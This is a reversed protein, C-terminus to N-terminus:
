AVMPALEEQPTLAAEAQPPAQVHVNAESSGSRVTPEAGYVEELSDAQVQCREMAHFLVLLTPLMHSRRALPTSRGPAALVILRLVRDQLTPSKGYGEESHIGASAPAGSDPVPVPVVNMAPAPLATSENVPTLGAPPSRPAAVTPRTPTTMAPALARRLMANAAGEDEQAWAEFVQDADPGELMPVDGAAEGRQAGYFADRLGQRAADQAEEEDQIEKELRERDKAFRAREKRFAEKMRTSRRSQSNLATQIAPTTSSRALRDEARAASDRSTTGRDAPLSVSAYSPFSPGARQNDGRWPRKDWAAQQSPSYAGPWIRYGNDGSRWPQSGQQGSQRGGRGM